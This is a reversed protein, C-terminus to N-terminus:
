IVGRYDVYNSLTHQYNHQKTLKVIPLLPKNEATIKYSSCMTVVYGIVINKLM